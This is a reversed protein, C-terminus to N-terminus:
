SSQQEGADHGKATAEAASMRRHWRRAAQPRPRTMKWAQRVLFRRAAEQVGEAAVFGFNSNRGDARRILNRGLGAVVVTLGTNMM